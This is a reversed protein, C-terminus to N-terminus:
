RGGTIPIITGNLYSSKPSALFSVLEAVESPQGIYGLPITKALEELNSSAHMDTAIIAPSVANVRIGFSGLEKALAITFTNLGGKATAYPALNKGGFSAAQSTINIISAFGEKLVSETIYPILMQTLLMPGVLNVNLLHEIQEGSFETFALRESVIGANNVLCTLPLGTQQVQYLLFGRQTSNAIDCKINLVNPLEQPKTSNYTAIVFFGDQVLKQVIALGIGKSGGSVLALKKPQSM